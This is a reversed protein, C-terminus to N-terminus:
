PGEGSAHSAAAPGAPPVATPGLAAAIDAEDLGAWRLVSGTHEGVSPVPRMVAPRAAGTLPPELAVLPGAPSGVERLRSRSQLAPHRGLATVETIRAHAVGARDLLDELAGATLRGIRRDIREQLEARNRVRCTNTAFRADVTMSPDALVVDCFRSWERDNQVALVIQEGHATSFPGYPAIAAHAAGNRPPAAGSYAGYYFPFGMWEALSDFLSVEVSSGQGTREREYLAALIGSFAYSGAAIDAVPIGAKAPEDPTGTVSLLGAEAQVLLDYAKRDRYPGETGYGSVDCTILRPRTARVSQSGLGLREAAGPALNQVFVDARDLLREVATVAGPQKLDLAVSEKSRNLWVFHSSLGGVTEDYGRAFDGGGPREIKIVRAGLDALQRTALPAAVAQELAVVLLGTLPLPHSTRETVAAVTCCIFDGVRTCHV